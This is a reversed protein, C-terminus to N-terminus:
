EVQLMRDQSWEGIEQKGSPYSMIGQGNKSGEVFQGVYRSGDGYTMSGQGDQLNEGGKPKWEGIYRNGNMAWDYMGHGEWMPMTYAAGDIPQDWHCDGDTVSKTKSGSRRQRQDNKAQIAANLTKAEPTGVKYAYWEGVFEDGNEYVCIGQGRKPRNKGDSSGDNDDIRHHSPVYTGYGQQGDASWRGMYKDGNALTLIGLGVRVGDKWAGWFKDGNPWTFTGMGNKQNERFDGVYKGEPSIQTGWGHRQDNVWPGFYRGGDSTILAGRGHKGNKVDYDGTYVGDSYKAEISADIEHSEPDPAQNYQNHLVSMDFLEDECEGGSSCTGVTVWAGDTENATKVIDTANEDLGRVVATIASLALLPKYM